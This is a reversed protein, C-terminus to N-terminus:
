ARRRSRTVPAEQVTSSAIIARAMRMVLSKAVRRVHQPCALFLDVALLEEDATVLFPPAEALPSGNLGRARAATVVAQEIQRFALYNTM